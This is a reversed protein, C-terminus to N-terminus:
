TSPAHLLGHRSLFQQLRATRESAPERTSVSLLDAAPCCEQEFGKRFRETSGGSNSAVLLITRGRLEERHARLWTRLPPSIKGAWVPSIILVTAADHLDAQPDEIPTAMGFTAQRGSRIFGLFGQRPVKDFIEWAKGGTLASAYEALTRCHGTRTVYIIAPQM